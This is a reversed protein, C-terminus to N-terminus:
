KEFMRELRAVREKLDGSSEVELLKEIQGLHQNAAQENKAKYGESDEALALTARKEWQELTWGDHLVVFKAREFLERQLEVVTPQWQWRAIQDRRRYSAM